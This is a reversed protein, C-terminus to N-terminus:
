ACTPIAASAAFSSAGECSVCFPSGGARNLGRRRHAAGRRTAVTESRAQLRFIRAGAAPGGRGRRAAGPRARAAAAPDAARVLNWSKNVLIRNEPSTKLSRWNSRKLSEIKLSKIELIRIGSTRTRSFEFGQFETELSKFERAGGGSALPPVRRAPRQDSTPAAHGHARAGAAPRPRPAPGSGALGSRISLIRSPM